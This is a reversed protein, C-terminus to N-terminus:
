KRENAKITIIPSAICTSSHGLLISQFVISIGISPSLIIINFVLLRLLFFMVVLMAIVM